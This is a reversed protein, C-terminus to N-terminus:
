RERLCLPVFLVETCPKEGHRRTETLSGSAYIKLMRKTYVEHPAGSEHARQMFRRNGNEDFGYRSDALTSSVQTIRWLADTETQSSLNNGHTQTISGAAHNYSFGGLLTGDQRM